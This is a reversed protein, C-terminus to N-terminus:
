LRLMRDMKQFFLYRFPLWQRASCTQPPFRSSPRPTSEHPIQVLYTKQLESPEQSKSIIRKTAEHHEQTENCSVEICVITEYSTACHVITWKAPHFFLLVQVLKLPVICYKEQSVSKEKKPSCYDRIQM